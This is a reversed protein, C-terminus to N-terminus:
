MASNVGDELAIIIKGREDHIGACDTAQFSGRHREDGGGNGAPVVMANINRRRQHARKRMSGGPNKKASSARIGKAADEKACVVAAGSITKRLMSGDTVYTPELAHAEAPQKWWKRSCIM